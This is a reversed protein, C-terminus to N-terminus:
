PSALKEPSPVGELRLNADASPDANSGGKTANLIPTLPSTQRQEFRDHACNGRGRGRSALPPESRAHDQRVSLIGRRKHEFMYVM